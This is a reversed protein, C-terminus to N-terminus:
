GCVECILSEALADKPTGNLYAAFVKEAPVLVIKINECGLNKLMAFEVYGKYELKDGEGPLLFINQM